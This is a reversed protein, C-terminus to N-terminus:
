KIARYFRLSLVNALTDCFHDTGDGANVSQFKHLLLFYICACPTRLSLLLFYLSELEGTKAPFGGNKAVMERCPKGHM